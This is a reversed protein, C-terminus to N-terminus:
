PLAVLYAVVDAIEQESLSDAFTTVMIPAFDPVVFENPAVIAATLYENATQGDVRTEATTGVGSLGPGVGDTSETSHCAACGASSFVAEGNGADGVLAEPVDVPDAAPATTDAAPSDSTDGASAATPEFIPTPVVDAEDSGCAAVFMAGVIM